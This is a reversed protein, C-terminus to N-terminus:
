PYVEAAALTAGRRDKDALLPEQALPWRIGIQPDNWLVTREHAPAYFDTTKYLVDAQESLVLFGHAFGGPIWVMRKSEASLTVGTWKGFNPSSRRLDVAVDFVEGAVVRVLKGQAQRIQYHLGRLAHRVSHSHNDQVFEVDIGTAERFSRRNYSEFLFGRADPFVRPEVVLVGPLDTPTIKM